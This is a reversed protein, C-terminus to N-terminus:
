AICAFDLCGSCLWPEALSFICFGLMEFMDLARGLQIHLIWANQLVGLSQWASCAFDLYLSSLWAEALVYM